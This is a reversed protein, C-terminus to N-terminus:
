RARLLGTAICREGCLLDFQISGSALLQRKLGIEEGPRVVGLFKASVIECPSTGDLALAHLAADLLVVGPVIPMGPFHGAFAPHAPDIAIPLLPEAPEVLARLSEQPLKGTANRPLRDVFLLPRPMFVPDVRRRLALVLTQADLTPAVVVAALRAVDTGGADHPERVFFAGDLVGDIANLEHNLFSLSSRKGAVNVLDASRGHLLFTDEGTIEIIDGLATPQEVHGGQAVTQGGGAHLRVGPWLSFLASHATRRRAIQGTETSGYIELLTCDFQREAERALQADLPATACILLEVPPMALGSTILARLHVPTSVFVRPQPAAALAACVDAPYFPREATLANASQLAILVTSEFGFMHQPPVTGILTHARGDLLGLAEAGDRVCRVLKGWTKPYPLPMGTSGSTFVIAAVQAPDIVPVQWPIAAEDNRRPRSRAGPAPDERCLFKDLAIECGRDDTLCFADPAYEGLRRITEPTHTSPLLSIKGTMLCAAFGVAFRYRDVCANLVHRSAPLRAALERADALFERASVAAGRRHAIRAMADGHTFIPLAHAAAATM